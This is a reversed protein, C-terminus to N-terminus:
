VEQRCDQQSLVPFSGEKVQKEPNRRDEKLVGVYMAWNHIEM